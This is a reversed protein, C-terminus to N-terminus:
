ARPAREAAAKREAERQKRWAAVAAPSGWAISPADNVLLQVVDHLHAASEPDARLVAQTLDSEICATLFGGPQYGENFFRALSHVFHVPVSPWRRIACAEDFVLRSTPCDPPCDGWAIM